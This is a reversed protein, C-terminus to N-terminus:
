NYKVKVNISDLSYFLKADYPVFLCFMSFRKFRSNYVNPRYMIIHYGNISPFIMVSICENM